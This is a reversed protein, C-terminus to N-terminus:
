RDFTDEPGVAPTDQVATDEGGFSYSTFAQSLQRARARAADIRSIVDSAAPDLEAEPAAHPASQRQHAFRQGALEAVYRANALRIRAQVHDVAAELQDDGPTITVVHGDIAPAQIDVLPLSIGAQEFLERWRRAPRPGLVVQVVLLRAYKPHIGLVEVAIPQIPSWSMMLM